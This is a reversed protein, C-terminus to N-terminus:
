TLAHRGLLGDIYGLLRVKGEPDINDLVHSVVSAWLDREKVTEALLRDREM